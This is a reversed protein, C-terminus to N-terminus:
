VVFPTDRLPRKLLLWRTYINATTMEINTRQDYRSLRYDLWAACMCGLGFVLPPTLIFKRWFRWAAFISIVLLIANLWVVPHDTNWRILTLPGPPGHRRLWYERRRRATLFRDKHAVHPWGEAPPTCSGRELISALKEASIPPPKITAPGGEPPSSSQM